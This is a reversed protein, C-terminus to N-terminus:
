VPKVANGTSAPGADFPLLHFRPLLRRLDTERDYSHAGAIVEMIVPETVAV